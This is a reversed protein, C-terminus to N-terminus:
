MRLSCTHHAATKIVDAYTADRESTTRLTPSIKRLTFKMRDHNSKHHRRPTATSYTLPTNYNQARGYKAYKKTGDQKQERKPM